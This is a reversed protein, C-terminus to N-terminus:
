EEVKVRVKEMSKLSYVPVVVDKVGAIDRVVVYDQGIEVVTHSLPVEPEIYSISYASEEDKLSVAQGVKLMSFVGKRKKADQAEVATAVAVLVFIWIWKKM